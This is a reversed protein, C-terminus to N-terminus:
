PEPETNVIAETNVVPTAIATVALVLLALASTLQM